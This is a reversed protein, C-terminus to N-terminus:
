PPYPYELSYRGSVQSRSWFSLEMWSPVVPM